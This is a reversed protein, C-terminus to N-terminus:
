KTLIFVTFHVRTVIDCGSICMRHLMHQLGGYRSRTNPGFNLSCVAGVTSNIKHYGLCKVSLLHVTVAILEQYM